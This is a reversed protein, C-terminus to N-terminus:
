YKGIGKAVIRGAIGVLKANVKGQLRELVLKGADQANAMHSRPVSLREITDAGYLLKLVDIITGALRHAQAALDDADSDDRLVVMDAGLCLRPQLGDPAIGGIPDNAGYAYLNLGGALGIPDSEIYRGIGPSYDRFGNYYLGTEADFYQGPF